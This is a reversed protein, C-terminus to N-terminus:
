LYSEALLHLYWFYLFRILLHLNLCSRLNICLYFCNIISLNYQTFYRKKKGKKEEELVRLNGCDKIRLEGLASLHELGGCVVKSLNSCNSIFLRRLSSSCNLFVEEIEGLSEVEENGEIHMFEVCHYAEVALSKLWAVDSITVMKLEFVEELKGNWKTNIKIQLQKNFYTLNLDEVRPCMLIGILMQLCERVILKKLQPFHLQLQPILAENSMNTEVGVRRRWGKLKPMSTLELTELTPFCLENEVSDEEIYELNTLSELKLTKLHFFNVLRSLYELRDCAYLQLHEINTLFTLWKPMKANPYHALNLSRLNSHPELEEVLNMTGENTITKYYENSFCFEIHDLHEKNRMYCGERRDGEKYVDKADKPFKLHVNLSSKLNDLAKLEVLGDFFQKWNSCSGESGVIFSSLRQLCSLKDMGKPMHQLAYCCELGLSRLKVLKSSDKPLEKLSYCRYLELNQLNYLKAISNPLLELKDNGTLNLYRLHLLQGISEPLSTVNSYSLHLARLWRCNAISKKVITNDMNITQFMKGYLIISRIHTKLFSLQGQGERCGDCFLHRVKRHLNNTLTINSSIEKGSVKLAIDHMLDHIKCSVEGFYDTEIDQFFCRRLLISFYEEAADEISQGEDLPVIYGQAMWINILVKKGIVFDKPFMKEQGYLLSGVVRIALPVGACGGVIDQGIELLDIPFNSQETGFAAKKFLVWSNEDSLGRLKYMLCDEIITSTGQSRTTVMIWSGRHGGMLLSALALWQERKETWVDDLVLLFKNSTLKERLKSQVQDMTSVEKNEGLIKCVIEKVNFKQQDQDAVCTWLKLSFASTVRPDNYVLQALATKGLGGIGVISLFSVDRQVNPDLLMGVISELDDERGIIDVENVYSCTEPRRKRIPEHDLKFSFQNNYAINDLKKQIDNIGRWMRFSVNLPNHTRSFFNSVKKSLSGDAKVLQKQEALTVFEDFLDDAEFVADKLEEILNQEQQSLEQKAEADRLGAKIKNVTKELDDLKDKYGFSLLKEKLEKCQLAAFLTQAVSLVTGVDM